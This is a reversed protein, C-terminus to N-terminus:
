PIIEALLASKDVKGMASRPLPDHRLVLQRPLKYDAVLDALFARVQGLDLTAGPRLRLIAAIDQGLIPHPVGVVAAELVDPHEYLSGEVEISYVNYGGRVIMDKKRDVLYLFGDEDLYGLDGTRVWGDQWTAATAEPDNFYSRQGQPVRIRVEGVEGAAADAGDERVIRLASPDLPRGPSGPRKVAEGPPMSVVSTGGETLGYGSILAARPLAEALRGVAHPPMPASGYLVVRVSSTDRGELSGSELLLLVHAPVMLLWDPRREEILGAFMAADFSPPVLGTLGMRLCLVMAGHTGVFTPLPICHLMRGGRELIAAPSSLGSEHTAAVGKPLGTTGSTYLIDALDSPRRPIQFPAPDRATLSVWDEDDLVVAGTGAVLRRATGAHRGAAVVARAGSDSLVHALERAAYRPNVPVSVAGAKLAAFYAVHYTAAADNGIVLAVRDGPGVGASVLGRAAANARGEWEGFTMRASSGDGDMAELAVRDPFRAAVRALEGSLLGHGESRSRGDM